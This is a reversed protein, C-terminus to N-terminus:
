VSVRHFGRASSLLHSRRRKWLLLVSPLSAGFALSHHGGEAAPVGVTPTGRHDPHRVRAGHGPSVCVTQEPGAARGGHSAVVHPSEMRPSLRRRADDRVRVEAPSDRASPFHPDQLKGTGKCPATVRGCSGVASGSPEPRTWASNNLSRQGGLTGLPCSTLQARAGCGRTKLPFKM